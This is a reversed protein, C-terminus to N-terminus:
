SEDNIHYASLTGLDKNKFRQQLVGYLSYSKYNYELGDKPIESDELHESDFYTKSNTKTFSSFLMAKTNESNSKYNLGLDTKVSNEQREIRSPIDTTYIINNGEYVAKGYVNFRKAFNIDDFCSYPQENKIMDTAKLYGDQGSDHFINAVARNVAQQMANSIDDTEKYIAISPNVTIRADPDISTDLKDDDDPTQETKKM